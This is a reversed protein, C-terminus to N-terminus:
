LNMSCQFSEGGYDEAKCCEAQTSALVVAIFLGHGVARSRNDQRKVIGLDERFEMRSGLGGNGVERFIGEGEASRCDTARHDCVEHQINSGIASGLHIGAGIRQRCVVM